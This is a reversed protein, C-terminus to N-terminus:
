SQRLITSQLYLSHM